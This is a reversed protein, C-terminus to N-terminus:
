MCCLIVKRICVGYMIAMYIRYGNSVPEDEIRNTQNLWRPSLYVM